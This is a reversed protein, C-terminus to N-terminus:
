KKKGLLWLCDEILQNMSSESTGDYFGRLRGLQDVLVVNETHVFDQMGGDGGSAEDYCAFYSRRALRYIEQKAGTLFWWNPHEANMRHAYDRLVTVSDAEPTVSHSLIRWDKEEELANRVKTLNSTMIPCITACRTFFFDVILVDGLVDEREIRDGFHNILDFSTIMHQERSWDQSDVLAPNLDGPQLIPLSKSPYLITFGVAVAVMFTILLAILQWLTTSGAINEKKM